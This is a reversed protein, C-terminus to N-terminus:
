KSLHDATVEALQRIGKAFRQRLPFINSMLGRKANAKSRESLSGSQSVPSLPSLPGASLHRVEAEYRLPQSYPWFNLNSQESEKLILERHWAEGDACVYPCTKQM